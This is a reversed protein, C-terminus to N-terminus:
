ASLRLLLKAFNDSTQQQEKHQKNKIVWAGNVMVDNVINQQSAFIVSDLLHQRTSAFLQTQESDLVLLDAQKGIALCGTNSNTSQAGM